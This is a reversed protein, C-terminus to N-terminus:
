PRAEKARLDTARAVRNARAYAVRRAIGEIRHVATARDRAHVDGVRADAQGTAGERDGELDRIECSRRRGDRRQGARGVQLVDRPPLHAVGNVVRRHLVRGRILRNEVRAGGPADVEARDRRAERVHQRIGLRRKSSRGLAAADHARGRRRRAVRARQRDQDM